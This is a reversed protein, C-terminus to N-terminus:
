AVDANGVSPSEEANTNVESREPEDMEHRFFRHCARGARKASYLALDAEHLL